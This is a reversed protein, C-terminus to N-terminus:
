TSFTWIQLFRSSVPPWKVSRADLMKILKILVKARETPSANTVKLSRLRYIRCVSIEEQSKTETFNEFSENVFKYNDVFSTSKRM